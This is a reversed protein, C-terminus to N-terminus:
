NIGKLNLRTQIILGGQHLPEGIDGLAVNEVDAGLEEGKGPDEIVHALSCTCSNACLNM